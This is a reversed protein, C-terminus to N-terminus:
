PTVEPHEFLLQPVGSVPHPVLHARVGFVAQILDPTLVDAPKGGAVVRGGDLVHIRDCYAAALNLDHLVTLVTLGTGRVLALVDLQHRIDLHNTPEDLVLVQPEQALARAILVRQREGGSLTLFSRAALHTADVRRLSDAILERDHDTDRDFASQHPLRGMAVVESVTFDFEVHSDQTLAALQRASEKTPLSLLDRGDLLVAGTTPKLARYVCRLTTSKGSGNPGVVGVVEGTGATLSIEHVIGAVSIADLELEM